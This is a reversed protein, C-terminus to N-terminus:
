DKHYEHLNRISLCDRSINLNLFNIWGVYLAKLISKLISEIIKKLMIAKWYKFLESFANRTARFYSIKSRREFIYYDSFLWIMLFELTFIKLVAFVLSILLGM